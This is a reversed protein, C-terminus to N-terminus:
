NTIQNPTLESKTMEVFKKWEEPKNQLIQKFIKLIRIQDDGKHARIFYPFVIPKTDSTLDNWYATAKVDLDFLEQESYLTSYMRMMGEELSTHAFDTSAFNQLHQNLKVGIQARKSPNSTQDLQIFDEKVLEVDMGHVEHVDVWHETFEPRKLAPALVCNESLTHQRYAAFVSQAFSATAQVDSASTYDTSKVKSCLDALMM